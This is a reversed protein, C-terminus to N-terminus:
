VGLPNIGTLERFEKRRENQINAGEEYFKTFKSEPTFYMYLFFLVFPIFILADYTDMMRGLNELLKGVITKAM